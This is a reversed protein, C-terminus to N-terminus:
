GGYTKFCLSISSGAANFSTARLEPLCERSTTLPYNPALNESLTFHYHRFGNPRKEDKSMFM